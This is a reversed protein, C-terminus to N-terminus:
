LLEGFHCYFTLHPLIAALHYLHQMPGFIDRLADQMEETTTPKYQELIAKAIVRSAESRENKKAM